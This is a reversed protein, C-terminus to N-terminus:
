TENASFNRLNSASSLDRSVRSLVSTRIDANCAICSLFVVNSFLRDASVRTLSSKNEARPSALRCSSIRSLLYGVRVFVSYISSNPYNNSSVNVCLNGRLRLLHWGAFPCPLPPNLISFLVVTRPSAMPALHIMSVTLHCSSKVDWHYWDRVMAIVNPNLRCSSFHHPMLVLSRFM